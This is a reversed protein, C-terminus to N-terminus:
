GFTMLMFDIKSGAKKRQIAENNDDGAIAASGQSTTKHM